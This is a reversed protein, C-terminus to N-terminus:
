SFNDLTRKKDRLLERQPNEPTPPTKKGSHKLRKNIAQDQHNDKAKIREEFGVYIIDMAQYSDRDHGLV